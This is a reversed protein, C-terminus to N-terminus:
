SASSPRAGGASRRGKGVGGSGSSVPDDLNATALRSADAKKIYYYDANDNRANVIRVRFPNTNGFSCYDIRDCYLHKMGRSEGEARLITYIRTLKRSLEAMEERPYILTEWLTDNGDRDYLPASDMYHELEEYQVPLEVERGYRALYERLGLGIPYVPKKKTRQETAAARAPTESM